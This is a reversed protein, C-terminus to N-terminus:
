ASRGDVTYTRQGPVRSELSPRQDIANNNVSEAQIQTSFSNWSTLILVFLSIMEDPVTGGSSVFM